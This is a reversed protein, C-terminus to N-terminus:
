DTEVAEYIASSKRHRGDWRVSLLAFEGPLLEEAQSKKIAGTLTRQLLRVPQNATLKQPLAKFIVRHQIIDYVQRETSLRM